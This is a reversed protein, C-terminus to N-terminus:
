LLCMATTRAARRDFEVVRHRQQVRTNWMQHIVPRLATKLLKQQRMVMHIMHLPQERQAPAHTRGNGNVTRRVLRAAVIQEFM